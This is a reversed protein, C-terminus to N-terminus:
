FIIAELENVSEVIAVLNSHSEEEFFSKPHAGWTVAITEIGAHDADILDIVTDTIFLTEKKSVGFKEEILKFKEVKSVHTDRTAIFDFYQVLDAKELLPLTTVDFANTNLVISINLSHLKQILEKIGNFVSSNTKNGIYHDRDAQKQEPTREIEKHAEQWSSRHKESRLSDIYEERTSTPRKLLQYGVVPEITNFIVGDMDFIILKKM